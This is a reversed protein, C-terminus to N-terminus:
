LKMKGLMAVDEIYRYQLDWVYDRGLVHGNFAVKCFAQYFLLMTYLTPSSKTMANTSIDTDDAKDGDDNDDNFSDIFKEMSENDDNTPTNVDARENMM